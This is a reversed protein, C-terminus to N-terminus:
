IEEDSLFFSELEPNLELLTHKASILTENRNNRYKYEPFAWNSAEIGGEDIMKLWSEVEVDISDIRKQTDKESRGAQACNERTAKKLEEYDGDLSKLPKVPNLIIIFLEGFIAKIEKRSLLSPVVPGYIEAKALESEMNGLVLFQWDSRVKFFVTQAKRFYELRPKTSLEVKEDGLNEFIWILEERLKPNAYFFDPIGGNEDRDRPRNRMRYPDIRSVSEVLIDDLPSKGIGGPGFIMLTKKIMNSM